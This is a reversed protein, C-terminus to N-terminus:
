GTIAPSSSGNLHLWISKPGKSMASIESDLCMFVVKAGRSDAIIEKPPDGVYLTIESPLTLADEPLREEGPNGPNGPNHATMRGAGWAVIGILVIIVGVFISDKM